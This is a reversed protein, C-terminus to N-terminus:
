CTDHIDKEVWLSRAIDMGKRLLVAPFLHDSSSSASSQYVM